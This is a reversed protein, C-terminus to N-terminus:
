NRVALNRTKIIGSGGFALMLIGVITLVVGFPIVFNAIPIPVSGPNGAPDGDTQSMADAPVMSFLGYIAMLCGIVIIAWATYKM